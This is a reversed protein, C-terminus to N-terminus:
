YQNAFGARAKNSRQASGLRHRAIGLCPGVRHQSWLRGAQRGALRLSLTMGFDAVYGVHPPSRSARHRFQICWLWPRDEPRYVSRFIDGIEFSRGEEGEFIVLYDDRGAFEILHMM